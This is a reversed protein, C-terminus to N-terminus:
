ITKYPKNVVHVKNTQLEESASKGGFFYWAIDHYLGLNIDGMGLNIDGVCVFGCM